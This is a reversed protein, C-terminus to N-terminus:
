RALHVINILVVPKYYTYVQTYLHLNSEWKINNKLNKNQKQQQQGGKKINIKKYLLSIIRYEVVVSDLCSSVWM